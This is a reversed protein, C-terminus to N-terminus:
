RRDFENAVATLRSTIRGIITNNRITLILKEDKRQQM